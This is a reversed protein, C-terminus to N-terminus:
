SQPSGLHPIEIQPAHLEYLAGAPDLSYEAVAPTVENGYSDVDGEAASDGSAKAVVAPEFRSSTVSRPTVLGGVAFALGAVAILVLAVVKVVVAEVRSTQLPPAVTRGPDAGHRM